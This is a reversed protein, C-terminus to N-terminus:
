HQKKGHEDLADMRRMLKVAENVDIENDKDTGAINRVKTDNDEIEYAEEVYETREGTLWDEFKFLLWVIGSTFFADCLVTVLGILVGTGLTSFVLNFPTLAFGGVFAVDILSLVIGVWTSFCMPCSFLEGFGDSIRHALERWKECIGFPGRGYVVIETLGYALFIYVFLKLAIM